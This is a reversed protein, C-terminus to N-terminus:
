PVKMEFPYELQEVETATEVDLRTPLASIELAIENENFSFAYTPPQSVLEGDAGYAKLGVVEDLAGDVVFVLRGSEWKKLILRSRVGSWLEGMNVAVSETASSKPLFFRLKGRVSVIGDEKMEGLRLSFESNLWPTKEDREYVGNFVIGGVRDFSLPAVVLANFEQGSANIFQNLQLQAVGIRNFIPLNIDTYIAGTASFGFSKSVGM